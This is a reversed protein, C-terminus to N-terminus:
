ACTFWARYPDLIDVGLRPLDLVIAWRTRQVPLRKGTARM